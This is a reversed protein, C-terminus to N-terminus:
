PYSPHLYPTGASWMALANALLAIVGLFVCYGSAKAQLKLVSM